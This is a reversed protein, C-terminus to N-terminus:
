PDFPEGFGQHPLEVEKTEDFMDSIWVLKGPDSDFV